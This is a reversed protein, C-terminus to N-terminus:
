GAVYLRAALKFFGSANAHQADPVLVAHPFHVRLYAQLRISGGGALFLTYMAPNPLKQKVWEAIQTAWHAYAPEVMGEDEPHERLWDEVQEITLDVGRQRGLIRAAEAHAINAGIPRSDSQSDIYKLKQMACLNVDRYGVDICALNKQALDNRYVLGALNLLQGWLAGAGQAFVTVRRISFTVARGSLEVTYQGALGVEISRRNEPTYDAIQVGIVLNYDTAEGLCALAVPALVRLWGLNVTKALNAAAGRSERVALSGVFYHRGNVKVDLEDLDFRDNKLHRQVGDSVVSPFAIQRDHNVAKVYGRGVDLGVNM